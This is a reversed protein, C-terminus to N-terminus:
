AWLKPWIEEAAKSEGEEVRAEEEVKAEEEEERRDEGEDGLFLHPFLNLFSILHIIYLSLMSLDFSFSNEVETDPGDQNYYDIEIERRALTARKKAEIERTKERCDKLVHDPSLCLFCLQSEKARKKRNGCGKSPTSINRFQYMSIKYDM